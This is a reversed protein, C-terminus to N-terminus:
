PYHKTARRKEDATVCNVASRTVMHKSTADGLGPNDPSSEALTTSTIDQGGAILVATNVSPSFFALTSKYIFNIFQLELWDLLQLKPWRNAFTQNDQQHQKPIHCRFLVSDIRLEGGIQIQCKTLYVSDDITRQDRGVIHLSTM